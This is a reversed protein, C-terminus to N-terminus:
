GTIRQKSIGFFWDTLEIGIFDIGLDRCAVGAWGTGMFPDLVSRAGCALIIQRALEVPTPSTHPGLQYAPGLIEANPQPAFCMPKDLRWAWVPRWTYHTEHTELLRTLETHEYDVARAPPEFMNFHVNGAMNGNPTGGGLWIVPGRSVRLCENLIAQQPNGPGWALKRPKWPADGLILDVSADAFRKLVDKSDGLYLDCKGISVHSEM